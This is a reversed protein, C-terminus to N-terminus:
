AFKEEDSMGGKKARLKGARVFAGREKRGISKGEKNRGEDVFFYPRL